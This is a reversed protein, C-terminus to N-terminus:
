DNYNKRGEARTFAAKAPSPPVASNQIMYMGNPDTYLTAGPWVGGAWGGPNYAVPNYRHHTGSPTTSQTTSQLRFLGYHDHVPTGFGGYPGRPSMPPFGPAGYSQPFGHAGALRHVEPSVPAAHIAVPTSTPVVVDNSSQQTQQAASVAPIQSHIWTGQTKTPTGPVVAAQKSFESSKKKKLDLTKFQQSLTEFHQSKLRRPVSALNRLVKREVKLKFGRM